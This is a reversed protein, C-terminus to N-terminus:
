THIGRSLLRFGARECHNSMLHPFVTVVCYQLLFSGLGLNRYVTNSCAIGQNLHIVLNSFQGLSNDAITVEINNFSQYLNVVAFCTPRTTEFKRVRWLM